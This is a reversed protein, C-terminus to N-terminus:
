VNLLSYKTTLSPTKNNTLEVHGLKTDRDKTNKNVQSILIAGLKKKTVETLKEM